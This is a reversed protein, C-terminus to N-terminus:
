EESVLVKLTLLAQVKIYDEGFIQREQGHSSDLSLDTAIFVPKVDTGANKFLALDEENLELSTEIHRAASVRGAADVAAAPLQIPGLIVNPRDYLRALADALRLHVAGGLPLHNDIKLQIVAGQLRDTADASIRVIAGQDYLDGAEEAPKIQIQTTDLHVEKAAWSIRAPVDLAVRARLYDSASIRGYTVGDGVLARGAIALHTPRIDMFQVIPSNQATFLPLRTRVEGSNAPQIAENITFFVSQGRDNWARLTGQLRLPLQITNFIDLALRADGFRVHDLDDLREPLSLSRFVTDLAVEQEQLRGSLHDIVLDSFVVRATLTSKQDLVYLQDGLDRTVGDFDINLLQEVGNAPLDLRVVFRRLDIRSVSRSYSMLPIVFHLPNGNSDNIEQFKWSLTEASIPTHNDLTVAVKGQQFALEEVQLTSGPLLEISKNEQLVLSPLKAHLFSVRMEDIQTLVELTQDPRILVAAGNSGAVSGSILWQNNEPIPISNLDLPVRVSDSPNIRAVRPASLLIDGTDGDRLQLAVNELAVPLGSYLRLRGRGTEIVASRFRDDAHKQGAVRQFVAPHIIVSQGEKGAAEGCLQAFGFYDYGVITNPITLDTLAVEFSQEFDDLVFNEGIAAAAIEEEVHFGLRGDADFMVRDEDEVIERVSYSRDVLPINWQTQWSPAEPSKLSCGASFLLLILFPRVSRIYKRKM